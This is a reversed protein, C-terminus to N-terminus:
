LGMATKWQAANEAQGAASYHVGDSTMTAGDDGGELWVAEDPGAFTWTSRGDAMVADLWGSLTALAATSGRKWPHAVGIRARPWKAHLADMVTAADAKLQAETAGLTVDNVGLDILVEAVCETGVTTAALSAAINTAWNAWTYGSVAIPM